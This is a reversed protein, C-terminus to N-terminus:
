STRWTLFPGSFSSLLTFIPRDQQERARRFNREKQIELEFQPRYKNWIATTVNPTGTYIGESTVDIASDIDEEAYGLEMFRSKFANLRKERSEVFEAEKRDIQNDQWREYRGVTKGHSAVIDKRYKKWADFTQQAGPREESAAGQYHEWESGIKRIDGDWYFVRRRRSRKGSDNTSPVYDLVERPYNPFKDEFSPAEVLSSDKSKKCVRKRLNWDVNHVCATGCSQCTTDFLLAAWRVETFGRPPKPAHFRERATKWVTKTNRALLTERFLKNIRSLNVLDKPNLQGLIEFLIDLPM